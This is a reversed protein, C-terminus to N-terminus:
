DAAEGRGKAADLLVSLNAKVERQGIYEDLTRPRLAGEVVKDTEDLLDPALVRSLDDTMARLTGRDPRTECPHEIQGVRTRWARTADFFTRDWGRIRGFGTAGLVDARRVRLDDVPPVSMRRLACQACTARARRRGGLS